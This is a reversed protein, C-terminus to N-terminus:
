WRAENRRRLKRILLITVYFTKYNFNVNRYKIGFIDSTVKRTDTEKVDYYNNGFRGRSFNSSSISCLKCLLAFNTSSTTVRVIRKNVKTRVNVFLKLATM